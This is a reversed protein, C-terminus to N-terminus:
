RQGQRKYVDLHTYSVTVVDHLEIEGAGVHPAVTLGAQYMRFLLFAVYTQFSRIKVKVQGLLEDGLGGQLTSVGGPQQGQFIHILSLRVVASALVLGAAAPVFSISGPTARRATSGPRTDQGAQRKYM